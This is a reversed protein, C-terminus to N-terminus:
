GTCNDFEIVYLRVMLCDNLDPVSLRTLDDECYRQALGSLEFEVEDWRTRIPEYRNPHMISFERAQWKGILRSLHRALFFFLAMDNGCNPKV